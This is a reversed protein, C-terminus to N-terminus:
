FLMSAREHLWHQLPFAILMVCYIHTHTHTYKYGETDLMYHAHATNDHPRDPDVINKWMIEYIVRNEFFTVFYLIHTKLKEVTEKSVNKM